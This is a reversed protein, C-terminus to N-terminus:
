FCCRIHVSESNVRIEALDASGRTPRGAADAHHTKTAAPKTSQHRTKPSLLGWARPRFPIEEQQKRREQDVYPDSYRRRACTSWGKLPPGDEHAMLHCASVATHTVYLPVRNPVNLAMKLCVLDARNKDGQTREFVTASAQPGGQPCPGPGAFSIHGCDM